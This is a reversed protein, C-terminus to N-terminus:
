HPGFLVVFLYILTALAALLLVIIIIRYAIQRCGSRPPAAEAIPVHYQTYERWDELNEEESMTEMSRDNNPHSNSCMYTNAISTYLLVFKALM